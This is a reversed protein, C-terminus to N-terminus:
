FVRRKSDSYGMYGHHNISRITMEDYDYRIRYKLNNPDKDNVNLFRLVEGAGCFVQMENIAKQMSANRESIYQGGQENTKSLRAVFPSHTVEEGLHIRVVPHGLSWLKVSFRIDELADIHFPQEDFEDCVDKLATVSVAWLQSAVGSIRFEQNVQLDKNWHAGARYDSSVAGLRPFNSFARLIAEIVSDNFNIDDDIQFLLDYKGAIAMEALFNRPACIGLEPREFIEGNAPVSTIEAKQSIIAIKDAFPSIQMAIKGATSRRRTPIGILVKM